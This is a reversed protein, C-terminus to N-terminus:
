AIRREVAHLTERRAPHAQAERRAPHAAERETPHAAERGAPHIPVVPRGETLAARLEGLTRSLLRSVHMQTVHVSRAIEQQTFERYFRLYLIQRERRGLRQLAPALTAVIEAREFTEDDEAICDALSDGDEGLPADLSLPQMSNHSELAEWVEEPRVGLREAFDEASPERQLEQTLADRTKAISLHLEQVRRPPRVLWGQDRLHRKLEGSITPVAFSVFDEGKDPDYRRSAKVLGMYAVQRLDDIDRHGATFRWALAEAVDLHSVVRENSRSQQADDSSSVDVPHLPLATIVSM